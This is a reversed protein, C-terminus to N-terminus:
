LARGAVRIPGGILASLQAVRRSKLHYCVATALVGFEAATVAGIVDHTGTRFITRGV